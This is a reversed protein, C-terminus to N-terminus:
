NSEESGTQRGAGNPSNGADLCALWQQECVDPLGLLMQFAEIRGQLRGAENAFTTENDSKLHVLEREWAKLADELMHAYLAYRTDAIMERLVRLKSVVEQKFQAREANQEALRKTIDESRQRNRRLHRFPDM